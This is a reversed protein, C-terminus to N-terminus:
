TLYEAIKKELFYNCPKSVQMFQGVPNVELFIYKNEETVIMDISGSNMKLLTMLCDIKVLIEHPLMFPVTRNPDAYNYKRFDTETQQDQQSFIAESYCKGHLYFIRLEFMKTIKNQILSPFFVDKTKEIELTETFSTYYLDNQDSYFGNSIAKTIFDQRKNIQNKNTVIQSNPIDLGVSSAMKLTELKNIENNFISGISKKEELSKYIFERLKKIESNFFDNLDDWFLLKKLDDSILLQKINLFGRRYWYSTIESYKIKKEHDIILSFDVQGFNDLRLQDIEIINTRNIRFYDKGMDDLWDIVQDTSVDNEDSLILIM